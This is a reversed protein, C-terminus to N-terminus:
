SANALVQLTASVATNNGGGSAVSATLQLYQRTGPPLKFRQTAAAGGSSGGTVVLSAEASIAAFSNNDASDQLQLTIADTNTLSPTAPISVIVELYDALPGLNLSGLDISPTSASSGAAPLAVTKTLNADVLRRYLNANLNSM